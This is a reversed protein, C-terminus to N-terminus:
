EAAGTISESERFLFRTIIMCGLYIAYTFWVEKFTFHWRFYFYTALLMIGTLIGMFFCGLRTTLTM